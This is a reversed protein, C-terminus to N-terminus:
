DRRIMFRKVLNRFTVILGAAIVAFLGFQLGLRGFDIRQGGKLLFILGYGCGASISRTDGFVSIEVTAPRVWPVYLCMAAILAIGCWLM